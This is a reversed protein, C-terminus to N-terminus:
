TVTLRVQARSPQTLVSVVDITLAGDPSTFSQGQQWSRSQQLLGHDGFAAVSYRLRYKGSSSFDHQGNAPCRSLRPQYGLMECKSCWAWGTQEVQDIMNQPITPAHPKVFELSYAGSANHDHRGGAVCRGPGRGPDLYALGYCRACWRWGTQGPAWDIDHVLFYDSSQSTDHVGGAPCAGIGDFFVALCRQCNTWEGQTGAGSSFVRYHGSQAGAHQSGTPCKGGVPDYHYLAKCNECWVWLSGPPDNAGSWQVWYSGSLSTDHKGGAACVGSGSEEQVLSQCRWCWRWGSQSPASPPAGLAISLQSGDTVHESGAGCFRNGRFVLSSCRICWRWANQASLGLSPTDPLARHERILVGDGPIAQDWNQPTRYEVSYLTGRSRVPVVATLYGATIPESTSVLEVQTVGPTQSNTWVRESGIWGNKFLTPAALTPGSSGLQASRYSNTNSFSMIDWRDGYAGPRSDDGPDLPQPSDNFSHDLGLTHGTEHSFFGQSPRQDTGVYYGGVLQHQGGAPCPATAPGGGFVLVHCRICHRWQGQTAPTAKTAVAYAGSTGHAHQGGGFCPGATQGDLRALCECRSCWRWGTEGPAQQEFRAVYLGSQSHDHRNGWACWGTPRSQDWFALSQCRNCWAWGRQGLEQYIGAVVRNGQAGGGCPTNVFGVFIDFDGASIDPSAAAIIADAISYRSMGALVSATQPLAVERPYAYFVLNLSGKSVDGWYRSLAAGMGVVEVYTPLAFTSVDSARARVSMARVLGKINSLFM